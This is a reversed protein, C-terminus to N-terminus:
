AVEFFPRGGRARQHRIAERGLNTVLWAGDRDRVALLGYGHLEDLRQETTAYLKPRARQAIRHHIAEVRAVGAPFSDVSRLLEVRQPTLQITTM